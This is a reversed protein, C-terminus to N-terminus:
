LWFLLAGALATLVALTTVLHASLFGGMRGVELRMAVWRGSAASCQAHHEGLTALDNPKTHAAEGDSSTEWRDPADM